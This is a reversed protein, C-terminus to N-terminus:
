QGEGRRHVAELARSRDDFQQFRGKQEQTTEHGKGAILIVDKQGARLVAEEIAAARDANRSWRGRCSGSAEAQRIGEAIDDIIDQPAEGRPNDSTLVIRDALEAAQRGMPARKSRDRDGGAGFVVWLKGETLPRLTALAKQLAEPTHAYDVFVAPSEAGAGVRQMRGPIEDTEALGRRIAEPEIGLLEAAAIAAAANEANFRGPLAVFADFAQGSSLSVKLEIGDLGVDVPRAVVKRGVEEGAESVCCGVLEVNELEGVRRALRRGEARELNVVAAPGRKAQGVSAPLHEQFLRWKARRYADMSGHFDLHEQSLNTFLGVSFATGEVRGNELGHSSVEVVAVDVGDDVMQRLTRQLTLGDPTTNVASQRHGEWRVEVTGVIGASLDASRCIGELLYSTSTKGNTGTIGVVALQRSPHDYFWSGLTGLVARTDDCQLVAIDPDSPVQRPSQEVLVASAGQEVAADIYDHGDVQGGAIAVFMGGSQVNRSDRALSQVVQDARGRCLRVQEIESVIDGITKM